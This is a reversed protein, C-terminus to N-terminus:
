AQIKSSHPLSEFEVVHCLRCGGSITAESNTARGPDMEEIGILLRGHECNLEVLLVAEELM